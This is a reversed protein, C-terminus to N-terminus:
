GFASGLGGIVAGGLAGWPGLAAGAGAGQLAGSAIDGFGGGRAAPAGPIFTPGTQQPYVVALNDLLQGGGGGGIKGGYFGGSYDDPDYGRRSRAKDFLSAVTSAMKGFKEGSFGSGSGYKFSDSGFEGSFGGKPKYIYDDTKFFSSEM